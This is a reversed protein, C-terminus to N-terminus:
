AKPTYLQKGPLPLGNTPRGMASGRPSAAMCISPARNQKYTENPGGPDPVPPGMITEDVPLFLNGFTGLGLQNVFKLRVPTGKRAIILPGLYKANTDPGNIQYYGRFKTAKPLGSHVQQTYDKLGIEYYDSGPFTTTDATAVPIYQGLDNANAQGLGPLTHVFKQIIPSNAYFTV